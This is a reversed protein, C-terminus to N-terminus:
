TGGRQRQIQPLWSGSRPSVVPQREIGDGHVVEPLATKWAEAVDSNLTMYPAANETQSVRPAVRDLM